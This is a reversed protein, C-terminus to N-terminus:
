ARIASNAYGLREINRIIYYLTKDSDIDHNSNHPAPVLIADGGRTVWTDCNTENDDILLRGPAALDTKDDTLHWRVNPAFQQIWEWRGKCADGDYPATAIRWDDGAVKNLYDMLDEAWPMLPLTRWWESPGQPVEAVVSWFKERTIGLTQYGYAMTPRPLAAVENVVNFLEYAAHSFNVLVDDVDCFILAHQIM